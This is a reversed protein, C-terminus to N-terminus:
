LWDAGVFNTANCITLGSILQVIVERLYYSNNYTYLTPRIYYYQCMKHDPKTSKVV